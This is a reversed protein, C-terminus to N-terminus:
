GDLLFISYNKDVKMFSWLGKIKNREVKHTIKLFESFLMYFNKDESDTFVIYDKECRLIELEGTFMVPQLKLCGTKERKLMNGKKDFPILM